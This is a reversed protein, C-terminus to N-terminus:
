NETTVKITSRIFEADRQMQALDKHWVLGDVALKGGNHSLLAKDGVKAYLTLKYVSPLQKAEEFNEITAITGEKDAYINITTCYATPQTVIEPELGIKVLLENYAHDVGYATFYVDQRQGGARPGLEIIKWGTKTHFLEIHAVCSRLGLAHVAQTAAHNGDAIEDGTLEIHSDTQYTYFGERGVSHATRSRLLPLPWVTGEGNVYVDISYMDGNIFEEAIFGPKGRGRDRAYIDDIVRFGETLRARLEEENHVKSVLMSSALGTPKVILPFTLNRLVQQVAEESSSEVAQVKPVLSIDYSGLMDRMKAKHTAWGLSSETPGNIYPLHPLLQQLYPQNRESSCTVLLVRDEISRALARLAKDDSFDCEIQEFVGAKDPTSRGSAKVESDILVIGRLSRGLKDSLKTLADAYEQDYDNLFIAIDRDSDNALNSMM